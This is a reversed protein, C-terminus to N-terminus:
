LSSVQSDLEDLLTTLRAHRETSSAASIEDLSRRWTEVPVDGNVSAPTPTPTPTPRPEAPEQPEPTIPQQPAKPEQPEPTTETM